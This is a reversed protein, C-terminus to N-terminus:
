SANEEDYNALLAEIARDCFKAHEEVDDALKRLIDAATHFAGDKAFFKAMAAQDHMHQHINTM